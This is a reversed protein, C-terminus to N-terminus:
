KLQKQGPNFLLVNLSETHLVQSLSAPKNQHVAPQQAGALSAM